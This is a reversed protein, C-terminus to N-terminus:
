FKLSKLVKNISLKFWPTYQDPNKRIDKKLKEIDIWKWEAIEEPNPTVEGDYRGVFVHDLEYESGRNAFNAHYIFSFLYQLKCNFGLEEKLRRHTAQELSEGKRPHSCCANAWCLGWLFKKKSRRQILMQNNKNFIFITFARHLIGNGLHCKMKEEFGIENDKEDVLILEEKM